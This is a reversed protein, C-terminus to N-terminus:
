KARVLELWDELRMTIIAEKRDARVVVAWNGQLWNYISTFGTARRKVEFMRDAGLIEALVDGKISGAGSLPVRKASVGVEILADRLAYEEASGKRKLGSRSVTM